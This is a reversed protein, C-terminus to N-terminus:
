PRINETGAAGGFVGLVLAETLLQRLLRGRAAGIAARLQLEGDRATARALLLSALNACAMLLVLGIAALLVLLPRRVDGVLSEHPSIASFSLGDNTSPFERALAAGLDSLDRTVDAAQVGPRAVGLVALYNSRRSEATAADFAPGYAIPLYVDANSPVRAGPVDAPLRAGAALVGIVVYRAGGVAIARGVAGPDGGFARSWYGHDLVAVADQGVRHEDLRFARGHVVRLGLQEFLGDSVSTARVEHADGAGLLTVAGTTYAEVREFVTARARLSMFDPASLTAYPTGDPYVTRVRYLREAAAVRLPNVLVGKVVSYLASTGGITLALTLIATVTFWPTRRLTRLAYRCDQALESLWQTRRWQRGHREGIVLCARRSAEVDGFRALALERARAPTEGKRVLEAVRMELHFTLEDDVDGGPDPGWLQRFRTWRAM